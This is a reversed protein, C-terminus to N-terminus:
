SGIPVTRQGLRNGQRQIRNHLRMHESQTMVQLNDPRNDAPDGNIHHVIEHPLLARGRHEAAVVRHELAYGKKDAHPDAPAHVLIHGSGIKTKGGRWNNSRKGRLHFSSRCSTSCFRGWGRRREAELARFERQCKACTVDIFGM